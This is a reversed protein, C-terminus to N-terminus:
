GEDKGAAETLFAVNKRTFFGHFGDFREVYESVWGTLSSRKMFIQRLGEDRSGVLGGPTEKGTKLLFDVVKDINPMEANSKIDFAIHHLSRGFNLCFAETPNPKKNIFNLFDASNAATFVKAPSHAEKMHYINRTPNTSSDMEDINYAGWPYYCTLKVLELIADERDHHFVRTAIHDVPLLLDTVGERQQTEKIQRFEENHNEKIISDKASHINHNDNYCQIYLVTNQTYVSPLTEIFRVGESKSGQIHDTFFGVGSENLVRLVEDIDSVLYGEGIYRTHTGQRNKALSNINYFIDKRKGDKPERVLIRPVKEDYKYYLVTTIYSDNEYTYEYDYCSMLLIEKVADLRQGSETQTILHNLKIINPVLGTNQRWDYIEKLYHWFYPSNTKTGNYQGYRIDISPAEYGSM